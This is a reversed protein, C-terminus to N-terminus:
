GADAEGSAAIMAAVQEPQVRTILPEFPLIDHDLLPTRVDDWVLPEIRLFGEAREALGPVVPKLYVIM